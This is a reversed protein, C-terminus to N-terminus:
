KLIDGIKNSIDDVIKRVGKQVNEYFFTREKIFRTGFEIYGSYPALAKIIVQNAKPNIETAISNRLNGSRYYLPKGTNPNTPVPKNYIKTTLTKKMDRVINLAGGRLAKQVEVRDLSKLEKLKNQLEQMDAANLKADFVVRPM